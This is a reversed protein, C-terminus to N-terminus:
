QQEERFDFLLHRAKKYVHRLIILSFCSLIFVLVSLVIEFPTKTYFHIGIAGGALVEHSNISLVARGVKWVLLLSQDAYTVDVQDGVNLDHYHLYKLRAKLVKSEMDGCTVKILYRKNTKRSGSKMYDEWKDLVMGPVTHPPSSIVGVGLIFVLSFLVLGISAAYFINPHKLYFHFPLVLSFFVGTTVMFVIIGTIWAKDGFVLTMRCVFVSTNLGAVGVLFLVAAAIAGIKHKDSMSLEAYVINM